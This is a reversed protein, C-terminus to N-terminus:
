PGVKISAGAERVGGISSGADLVETMVGEAAEAFVKGVVGTAIGIGTVEVSEFPLMVMEVLVTMAWGM